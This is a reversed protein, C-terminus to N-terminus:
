KCAKIIFEAVKTQDAANCAKNHAGAVAKPNKADVRKQLPELKPDGKISDRSIVISVGTFDGGLAKMKKEVVASNEEYPVGEDQPSYFHLVPIKAKAIPELVDIPNQKYEMAQQETLGYVSQLQKWSGGHGGSLGKGGPWSKIDCVPAAGVICAVQDPHAAAWKHIILGGRSIGILAPKAALGYTATMEKYFADWQKMAEPSGLPDSADIYAIHFGAALLAKDGMAIHAFPARLVWPRGAAPTKPVAVWCPRGAVEFSFQEAGNWEKKM